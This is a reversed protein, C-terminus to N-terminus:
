VFHLEPISDIVGHYFLFEYYQKLGEWTDQQPFFSFHENLLDFYVDWGPEKDVAYDKAITMLNRMGLERSLLLSEVFNTENLERPCAVVQHIFNLDTKDCWDEVIDLYNDSKFYNNLAEDKELLCAQYLELMTDLTGNEPPYYWDLEMEFYEKFLLDTLVQYQSDKQFAAVQQFRSLNAQFFLLAYRTVGGSWVAIEKILKLEISNRAYDLASIVGVEVRGELLHQLNQTTDQLTLHIGPQYGPQLMGYHLPQSIIENTSAFHIMKTLGIFKLSANQKDASIPLL